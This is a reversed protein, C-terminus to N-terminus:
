PNTGPNMIHVLVERYMRCIDQPSVQECKGILHRLHCRLGYQTGSVGMWRPDLAVCIVQNLAHARLILCVAMLFLPLASTDTHPRGPTTRPILCYSLVERKAEADRQIHDTWISRLTQEFRGAPDVVIERPQHPDMMPMTAGGAGRMPPRIDLHSSLLHSVDMPSFTAHRSTDWSYQACPGCGPGEGGESRLDEDDRELIVGSPTAVIDHESWM